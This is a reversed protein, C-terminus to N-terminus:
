EEKVHLILGNDRATTEKWKDSYGPQEPFKCISESYGNNTFSGDPNQYKINGDMYKVMLYVDLEQWTKLLVQAIVTSYDTIHKIAAARSKKTPNEGLIKITEDDVYRVQEICGNEIKDITSRIEPQVRDYLLYAFQALRNTVWFLSTPSYHMIDGNGVKVCDPVKSVSTYIPTLCSTAADDTGFWLIGKLEEPVWSRSQCVIWFGTQQTAIARENLYTQGNVTYHMPRWRYPTHHGGAGADTTMDM